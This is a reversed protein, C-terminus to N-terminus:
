PGSGVQPVGLGLQRAALAGWQSSLLDQVSLRLKDRNRDIQRNIKSPLKENQKALERDLLERAQHGLERAVSGGIQSIRHVRYEILRVDAQSVQPDLLVDPPLKSPDLKLGLNCRVHFQTRAEANVSLSILQVGLEWQALRAFVDLRADALLDFEVRGSPLARVDRVDIQLHRDPELVRVRYLKWTGHNVQKKRRKTKIQWGERRVDVGAWVEKTDGWHDRSEFQDPLNERIMSTILGQLSGQPAADSTPGVSAAPPAVAAAQPQQGRSAQGSFAIAAVIAVVSCAMESSFFGPRELFGPKQRLVIRSWATM